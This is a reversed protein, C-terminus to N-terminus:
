GKLRRFQGDLFTSGLSEPAYALGLDRGIASRSDWLLGPKKAFDSDFLLPARNAGLWSQKDSVGWTQAAVRRKVRAFIEFVKKYASKQRLFDEESYKPKPDELSGDLKREDMAIDLETIYNDFGLAAMANMRDELLFAPDLITSVNQHLQWGMGHIPIGRQRMDVLMSRIVNFKRPDQEEQGYDNYILKANPDAKAAARFAIDVFAPTAAQPIAVGLNRNWYSDIIAGSYDFVENVVHWTHVRGRFEGAVQSIHNELVAKSKSAPLKLVWPPNFQDQAWLLTHGHIEIGSRECFNAVSKPRGYNYMGRPSDSDLSDKAPGRDLGLNNPLYWYATVTGVSAENKVTSIFAAETINEPSLEFGIKFGKREALQKLGTSQAFASGYSLCVAIMVLSRTLKAARM